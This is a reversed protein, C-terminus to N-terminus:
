IQFVFYINMFFVRVATSIDWNGKEIINLLGRHALSYVLSILPLLWIQLSKWKRKKKWMDIVISIACTYTSYLLRINHFLLFFFCCVTPQQAHTHSLLLLLEHEHTTLHLSPSCDFLQFSIIKSKCVEKWEYMENTQTNNIIKKITSM